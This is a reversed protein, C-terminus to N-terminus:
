VRLLRRMEASLAVKGHLRYNEHNREIDSPDYLYNVMIGASQKLGKPSTDGLWNLREIRAGNDLHFRAVADLPRLGNRAEALFHACTGLLPDHLLQSLKADNNFNQAAVSRWLAQANEAAMGAKKLKTQIAPSLTHRAAADSQLWRVFGPIPSLTAFTKLAPFEHKLEEVVRKILFNGFSIGRL